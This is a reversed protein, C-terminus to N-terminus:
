KSNVCYSGKQLCISINIQQRVPNWFDVKYIYKKKMKVICHSVHFYPKFFLCFSTKKQAGKKGHSLKLYQMTSTNWIVKEKGERKWTKSDEHGLGKANTQSHSSTKRRSTQFEREYIELSIVNECAKKIIFM